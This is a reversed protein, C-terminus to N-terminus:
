PNTEKLAREALAVQPMSARKALPEFIARPPLDIAVASVWHIYPWAIRRSGRAIARCFKDAARDTKAAFPTPAHGEIKALMESKVFGPEICTVKVGTGHLDVQLSELFVSVFSKSASYCSYAGLGCYGAVSSVAVLHGKNRKVMRPLVATLTAATGMVNVRLVQEVLPWTALHAPTPDGRGANAIILELGGCEDDLQQIRAVTETEKSVDLAVPVIRGEGEKALTELMSTRRAAAYVTTGKRAWWLAMERGIGSSAGTILATRYQLTM